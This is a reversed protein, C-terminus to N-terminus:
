SCKRGTRSKWETFRRGTVAAPSCNGVGGVIGTEQVVESQVNQFIGQDVRAEFEAPTLRCIEFEPLLKAWEPVLPCFSRAAYLSTCCSQFNREFKEDWDISTEWDCGRPKPKPQDGNTPKPPPPQPGPPPPPPRRPQLKRTSLFVEVRRNSGPDNDVADQEGKSTVRIFVRSSLGRQQLELARALAARVALGRRMGLRVNYDASGVPDTHGVLVVTHVAAGTRWSEAIRAAIQEMQPRHFPQIDARDFDFNKLTADPATTLPPPTAGASVLAAQTRPGAVGDPSLGRRAQFRKIAATTAPGAIGDEVLREGAVRNLSQQVWKVRDAASGRSGGQTPPATGGRAGSGASRVAAETQPGVIGDVRLGYKSQFSRIVSRTQPGMIGDEALKLGLIRNLSQQIWRVRDAGSGSSSGLERVISDLETDPDLWPSLRRAANTRM